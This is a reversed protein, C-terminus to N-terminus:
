GSLPRHGDLSLFLRHLAFGIQVVCGQHRAATGGQRCAQALAELNKYIASFTGLDPIHFTAAINVKSASNRNQVSAVAV